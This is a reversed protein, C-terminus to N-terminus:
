GQSKEMEKNHNNDSELFASTEGTVAVFDVVTVFPFLEDVFEFRAM